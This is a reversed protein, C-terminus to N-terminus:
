NLAVLVSAIADLARDSYLAGDKIMDIAFWLIMVTIVVASGFAKYFYKCTHTSQLSRVCLSM